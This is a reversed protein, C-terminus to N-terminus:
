LYTTFYYYYSNSITLYSINLETILLTSDFILNTLIKTNMSFDFTKPLDTKTLIEFAQM